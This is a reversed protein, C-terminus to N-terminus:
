CSMKVWEAADAEVDALDGGVLASVPRLPHCHALFLRLLTM